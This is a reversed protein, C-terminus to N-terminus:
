QRNQENQLFSPSLNYHSGSLSSIITLSSPRETLLVNPIAQIHSDWPKLVSSNKHPSTTPEMGSECCPLGPHRKKDSVENLIPRAHTTRGAPVNGGDYNKNTYM